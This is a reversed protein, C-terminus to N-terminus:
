GDLLPRVRVALADPHLLEVGRPLDRLWEERLYGWSALARQVERGAAIRGEREPRLHDPQDDVFLALRIGKRQMTRAITRQKGGALCPLIRRRDMRFGYHHLIAHIFRPRKTSLIHFGKRPIWLPLAQRVHPYLRHLAFWRGPDKRLLEGRVAYMLRRYRDLRDRRANREQDFEEQSQPQRGSDLLEQILVFDEATRAFPRLNTFRGRLELPVATPSPTRRCRYYATWSSVLCELVSDCIVGDFDLFVASQV